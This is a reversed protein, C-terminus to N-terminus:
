FLLIHQHDDNNNNNNNNYAQLNLKNGVLQLCITFTTYLLLLAHVNYVSLKVDEYVSQISSDLKDDILIM